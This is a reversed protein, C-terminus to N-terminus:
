RNGIGVSRLASPVDSSLREVADWGLAMGSQLGVALGPVFDVFGHGTDFAAVPYRGEIAAAVVTRTTGFDIGLRMSARLANQLHARCFALRRSPPAPFM